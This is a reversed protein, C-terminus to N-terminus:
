RTLTSRRGRGKFLNILLPLFPKDTRLKVFDAKAKILNREIEKEEEKVYNEYKKAILKSNVLLTKNSFPDQLTIEINEKPLVEDKEDRVMFVITDFKKTFQELTEKWNKEKDLGIFDSIIMIVTTNDLLGFIYKLTDKFKFGGGWNSLDSMERMFIYFQDMGTKPLRLKVIKDSFLAYGIKDGAKQVLYALSASLEGAYESKLKESSGFLMSQSVDLLFFLNLNREEKYEKVLLKNTKLSAKWDINLADDQFTYDRFEEFELGRGKFISKYRGIMKNTVLERAFIELEKVIEKISIRLKKM